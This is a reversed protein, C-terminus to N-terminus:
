RSARGQRRESQRRGDVHPKHVERTKAKHLQRELKAVVRDVATFQDTASAKAVFQHGHGELTAECVEREAIRPNHEEDFHVEAWDMGPLFRELRSVKDRVLSEVADSLDTHRSSVTIDM